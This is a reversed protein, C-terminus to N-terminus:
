GGACSRGARPQLCGEEPSASSLKAWPQAVTPAPGGAPNRETPPMGTPRTENVGSEPKKAPLRPACKEKWRCLLVPRLALRWGGASNGAPETLLLMRPCRGLARVGGESSARRM